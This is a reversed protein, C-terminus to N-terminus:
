INGCAADKGRVFRDGKIWETLFPILHIQLQCIRSHVMLPQKSATCCNWIHEVDYTRVLFMQASILISVFRVEADTFTENTCTTSVMARTLIFIATHEVLRHLGEEDSHSEDDSHLERLRRCAGSICTGTGDM